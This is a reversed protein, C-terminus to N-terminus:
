KMITRQDLMCQHVQFFLYAAQLIILALFRFNVVQFAKKKKLKKDDERARM